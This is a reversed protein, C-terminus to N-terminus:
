ADGWIVVAAGWTFGAGVAGLLVRDGRRLLGRRRAEVLALPISAASTNGVDAIADLVREREVGLEAAVSNLIRGNAQHFVFLDIDRVDLGSANLADHTSQVLAAGARKFTEHGDMKILGTDRPAVLYPAASGDSGLVSPGVGGRAAPCLVVAGAGDGFLGATSRDDRDVFRSMVEAGVVLVNEARQAEILASGLTLGALFGTCAAGIDVAAAGQAGLAEAVLPAGNPTLEDAAVTALLVTDIEGPHLGADAVAARGAATALGSVREGSAARRRERIGTRREIWAADVGIRKAVADNSVVRDPLAAGLGAVGAHVLLRPEVPEARTDGELLSSM